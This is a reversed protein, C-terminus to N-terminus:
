CPPNVCRTILSNQHKSLLNQDFFFNHVHQIKFFWSSLLLHAKQTLTMIDLFLYSTRTESHIDTSRPHQLFKGLIRIAKNQLTLLPKIHSKFTLLFIASCCLLHTDILCFYLIRLVKYSFLFKLRHLMGINRSFKLRLLSIHTKFNMTPVFVIGLYKATYMRKIEHDNDITIKNLSLNKLKQNSRGYIIFVIKDFNPVLKNIQFWNTISKAVEMLKEKLAVLTPAKLSAATDDAFMIKLANEPTSKPLDNIYILFLLPGLISGQPVGINNNSTESSYEGDIDM